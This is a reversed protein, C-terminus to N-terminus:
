FILAAGVATHCSAQVLHCTAAANLRRAPPPSMPFVIGAARPSEGFSAFSSAARAATGMPSIQIM